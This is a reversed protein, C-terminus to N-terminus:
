KCIGKLRLKKIQHESCVFDQEFEFVFVSIAIEKLNINFNSPCRLIAGIQLSECLAASHKNSVTSM